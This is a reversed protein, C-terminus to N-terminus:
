LALVVALGVRAIDGVNARSLRRAIPRRILLLLVATLVIFGRLGREAGVMFPRQFAFIPLFHRDFWAQDAALTGALLLIALGAVLIELWAPRATEDQVAMVRM